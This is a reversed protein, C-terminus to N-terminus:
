AATPGAAMESGQGVIAARRADRRKLEALLGFGVPIMIWASLLRYVLVAAAAPGHSAGASVLAALLSAEVLGIGGPTFPIQRVLQVSLYIVSLSLLDIRVEFAWCSALLCVAETAWKVVTWGVAMCLSSLRLLRAQRVTDLGDRALGTLKPWREEWQDLRPTPRESVAREGRRTSRVIVLTILGVTLLGVLVAVGPSDSILNLFTTATAGGLVLFYLLALSGASLVGSLVMVTAATARNAGMLRYQQFSFGAAVAAGAPLSNTLASGGFTIATMRRVTIKVDFAKLLLRQQEAFSVVSIVMAVAALLVWWWEATALATGIEAPSPVKGQLAVIIVVAMLLLGIILAPKRWRPKALEEEIEELDDALESGTDDAVDDPGAPWRRDLSKRRRGRPKAAPEGAPVEAVGATPAPGGNIVLDAPDRNHQAPDFAPDPPDAVKRDM